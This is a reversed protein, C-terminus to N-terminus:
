LNVFFYRASERRQVRRGLECDSTVLGSQFQVVETTGYAGVFKGEPGALWGEFQTM